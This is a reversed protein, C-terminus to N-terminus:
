RIISREPEKKELYIKVTTILSHMFNVGVKRQTNIM